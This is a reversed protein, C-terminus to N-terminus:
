EELLFFFGHSGLKITVFPALEVNVGMTKSRTDSLSTHRHDWTRLTHVNVVPHNCFSVAAFFCTNAASLSGKGPLLVLDLHIKKGKFVM